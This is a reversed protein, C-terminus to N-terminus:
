QFGGVPLGDAYNGLQQYVALNMNQSLFQVSGDGLIFHAGGVHFSQASVTLPWGLTPHTCPTSGCTLASANIAHTTQIVGDSPVWGSFINYTPSIEGVVLTNSTGDVMDRFRVVYDQRRRFMGNPGADVDLGGVGSYCSVAATTDYTSGAIDCVNTSAIGTAGTANGPFCWNPHLNTKVAPTPDSPCLYAPMPNQSTVLNAPDTIRANFNFRNYLPGQDIYPLVMVRWSFGNPLATANGHSNPPFVNHSDHYNHLALGIQKLNNKCQSRRAAERAQQVAPLLLAILVAIIAIVVLLEILTFAARRRYRAEM